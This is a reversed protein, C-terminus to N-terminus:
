ARAMKANSAHCLLWHRLGGQLPCQGVDVRIGLDGALEDALGRVVSVTSEAAAEPASGTCAWGLHPAMSMWHRPQSGERNCMEQYMMNLSQILIECLDSGGAGPRTALEISGDCSHLEINSATAVMMRAPIISIGSISRKTPMTAPLATKPTEPPKAPAAIATRIVSASFWSISLRRTPFGLGDASIM